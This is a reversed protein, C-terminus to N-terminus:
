WAGGVLLTGPSPLPSEERGAEGASEGVDSAWLKAGRPGEVSCERILSLSGLGRRIWSRCPEMARM